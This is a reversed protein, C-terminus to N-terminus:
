IRRTAILSRRTATLFELPMFVRWRRNFYLSGTCHDKTLREDFRLTEHGDGGVGWNLAVM